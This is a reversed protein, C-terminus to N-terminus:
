DFYKLYFIIMFAPLSVIAVALIVALIYDTASGFASTNFTSYKFCLVVAYTSELSEELILRIM